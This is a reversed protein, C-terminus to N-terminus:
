RYISEKLDKQFKAYMKENMTIIDKEREVVIGENEDVDGTPEVEGSGEDEQEEQEKLRKEYELILKLEANTKGTADFEKNYKKISEILIALEKAQEAERTKNFEDIKMEKEKLLSEMEQLKSKLQEVEEMKKVEQEQNINKNNDDTIKFSEAIVCEMSNEELGGIGVGCLARIDINKWTYIDQGNEKIINRGTARADISVDIEKNMAHEIIDPHKSTNRLIGKYVLKEDVKRLGVKGVINSVSLDGHEQM